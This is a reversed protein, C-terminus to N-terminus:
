FFDDYEEMAEILNKSYNSTKPEKEELEKEKEKVKLRMDDILDDFTQKKKEKKKKKKKKKKKESKGSLDNDNEEPDDCFGSDEDYSNDNDEEPIIPEEEPEIETESPPFALEELKTADIITLYTAYVKDRPKEPNQPERIKIYRTNKGKPLPTLDLAHLGTYLEPLTIKQPFRNESDMFNILGQPRIFYYGNKKYGIKKYNDDTHLNYLYLDKNDFITNEKYFDEKERYDFSNELISDEKEYILRYFTILYEKIMNITQQNYVTRHKSSKINEFILYNVYYGFYELTTKDRFINVDKLRSIVSLTSPNEDNYIYFINHTDKTVNNKIIYIKFEYKTRETIGNSSENTSIRELVFNGILKNVKKREHIVYLGDEKQVFQYIDPKGNIIGNNFTFDQKKM